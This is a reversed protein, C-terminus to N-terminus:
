TFGRCSMHRTKIQCLSKISYAEDCNGALCNLTQPTFFMAVQLPQLKVKLISKLKECDIAYAHYSAKEHAIPHEM